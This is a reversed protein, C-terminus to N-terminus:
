GNDPHAEASVTTSHFSRVSSRAPGLSNSSDRSADDFSKPWIQGIDFGFPFQINSVGRAM